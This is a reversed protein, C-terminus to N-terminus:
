KAKTSAIHEKVSVVFESMFASFVGLMGGLLIALVIILSRKPATKDASQRNIVLVEVGQLRELNGELESRREVAEAIADGSDSGKLSDIVDGLSEIQRELGLRESEVLASQHDKVSNILSSHVAEIDEGAAEPANTTLRVLGTSEPNSFSVQFPLKKDHKAHYITQVEPLWRSELTAMTTEPSQFFTRSDKKAIEILSVYEFEDEALLAYALGALSVFIFVIYFVRRRRIFTAVLEVLSIEDSYDPRQENPNLNQTHTM